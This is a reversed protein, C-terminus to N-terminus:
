LQVREGNKVCYGTSQGGTMCLVFVPLDKECSEGFGTNPECHATSGDFRKAEGQSLILLQLTEFPERLSRDQWKRTSSFLGQIAECMLSQSTVPLLFPPLDLDLRCM